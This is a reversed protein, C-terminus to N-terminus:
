TASKPMAHRCVYTCMDCDQRCAAYYIQKYICTYKNTYM